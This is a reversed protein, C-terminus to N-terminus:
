EEGSRTDRRYGGAEGLGRFGARRAREASDAGDQPRRCGSCVVLGSVRVTRVGCCPTMRWEVNSRRRRAM